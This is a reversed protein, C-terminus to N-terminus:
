GVLLLLVIVDQRVYGERLREGLLGFTGRLGKESLNRHLKAIM